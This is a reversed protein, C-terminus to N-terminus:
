LQFDMCHPLVMFALVCLGWAAGTMFIAAHNLCSWEQYQRDFDLLNETDVELGVAVSNSYVQLEFCVGRCSDVALDARWLWHGYRGKAGQEAYLSKPVICPGVNLGVSVCMCAYMSNCRHLSTNLLYWYWHISSYIFLCIFLMHLFSAHLNYIFKTSAHTGENSALNTPLQTLLAHSFMLTNKWRGIRVIDQGDHIVQHIRLSIHVHRHTHASTNKAMRAMRWISRGICTYKFTQARTFMCMRM